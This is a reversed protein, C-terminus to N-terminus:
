GNPMEENEALKGLLVGITAKDLGVRKTELWASLKRHSKIFDEYIGKIILDRQLKYKSDESLEKKDKNKFAEDKKALYKDLEFTEYPIGSRYQENKKVYFEGKARRIKPLAYSFYKQRGRLYLQKKKEYNYIKFGRKRQGSVLKKKLKYVHFLGESRFVAAYIELLFITPLVIFIILNRQRVEMLAEVIKKNISSRSGKSSLGRFAEDFVIVNGKECTRLLKLFQDPDFCIRDVTFTPDIYKAQQFAFSSKGTGERGDVLYIRDENLMQLNGDRIKDWIKLAVPAIHYSINKGAIPDYFEVM